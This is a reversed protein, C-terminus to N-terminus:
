TSAKSAARRVDYGARASMRNQQQVGPGPRYCFRRKNFFFFFPFVLSLVSLFMTLYVFHIRKFSCVIFAIVSFPYILLYIFIFRQENSQSDISKSITKIRKFFWILNKEKSWNVILWWNVVVKIKNYVFLLANVGVSIM